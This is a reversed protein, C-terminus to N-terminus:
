ASREGTSNRDTDGADGYDYFGAGSKKGLAGATVKRKLLYAPAYRDGLEDHLTKSASLCIDLGIHDALELPGMPVNTGLRMGRDIEEKSAVGEDYARIGENIWPMLIRNVVFGPKDDAEWTEKGLSEALEHALAVVAPDSREGVVVEVGVMVPVPNMFHLGAVREPGDTANAIATISLTSTNSFLAVDSEVTESLTAFLERKAELDEIIAEIVVDCRGLDDIDTTGQIREIARTADAETLRDTRTLRDLSDEAHEFGRELLSEDLDRILVEYGSTAVVQAIGAGMTGAGVVGVVSVDQLQRVM